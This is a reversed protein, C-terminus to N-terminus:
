ERTLEFPESAREAEPLLHHGQPDLAVEFIFRYIGPRNNVYDFDMPMAALSDGAAVAFSRGIGDVAFWPTRNIWHKGNWHEVYVYENMPAYIPLAGQNVLTARAARDLALSYVAKDTRVLLDPAELDSPEGSGCGALAFIGFLLWARVSLTM